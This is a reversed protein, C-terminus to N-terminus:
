SLGQSGYFVSGILEIRIGVTDVSGVSPVSKISIDTAGNLSPGDVKSLM